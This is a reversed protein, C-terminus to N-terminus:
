NMWGACRIKEREKLADRTAKMVPRAAGQRRVETISRILRQVRLWPHWLACSEATRPQRRRSIVAVLM